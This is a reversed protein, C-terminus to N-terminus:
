VVYSSISYSDAEDDDDMEWMGNGNDVFEIVEGSPKWAKMETLQTVLDCADDHASKFGQITAATIEELLEIVLPHDQKDSPLHIMGAKFWPVAVAHFRGFKNGVSRIGAKNGNNASVLNFYINRTMMQQQIWAIFGAQQGNVEIGVGLPKYQQVFRFLDDLNKDMPQRTCIGDVLFWHGLSNYAWVGITSFDASNEGSVAFDTTIYINFSPLVKMLNARVYWQIDSDLILRDEDSSIRLMLEQNFAAIKGNDKLTNYENLVFDYSFRDEWGGRFEERTCPFKECIPYVKTNWSRTGAAKYLPDKKNFPTGTWIIKRKKPHMAQRAAKYVINEIDRTITPSEANKDSMLDDFGAWTPRKGYEKFGRVGTSAGFGRVCFRHGSINIFEWRVDTFNAEPIYKQLFESNEYRFQLNKRMSKVGNDITDSIYMAVSVEGFKFFEGYTGLFLFMYEHLASTKASGRFSVFLDEDNQNVSDIMDFHIVPSKNEEGMGGNVMKIFNVFMIAEPSPKYENNLFYYDVENLLKELSLNDEPILSSGM